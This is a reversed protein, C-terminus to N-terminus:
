VPTPETGGGLGLLSLLQANTFPKALCLEAGAEVIATRSDAPAYGTMAIVRIHNTAPSSKLQRCVAFGDLGPMRLDLLVTDPKFSEVMRGAAFGDFALAATVGNLELLERLFAAFRQGLSMLKSSRARKKEMAM